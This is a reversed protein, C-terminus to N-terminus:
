GGLRGSALKASVPIELTGDHRYAGALRDFAARIEARTEEPQGLVLAATRVSGGLFGDWLEAATAVRINFETTSV